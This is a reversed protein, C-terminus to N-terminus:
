QWYIDEFKKICTKFKLRFNVLKEIFKRSIERNKM